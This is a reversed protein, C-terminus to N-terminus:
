TRLGKPKAAKHAAAGQFHHAIAAWSMLKKLVDDNCDGTLTCNVHGAHMCKIAHSPPDWQVIVSLRGLVNTTGREYLINGIVEVDKREWEQFELEQKNCEQLVDAEEDDGDDDSGEVHGMEEALTAIVAEEHDMEAGFEFECPDDIGDLDEIPLPSEHHDSQRAILPKVLHVDQVQLINQTKHTYNLVAVDWKLRHKKAQEVLHVCLSTSLVFDWRGIDDLVYLKPPLTCEMGVQDTYSVHRMAGM